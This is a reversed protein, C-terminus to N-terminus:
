CIGSSFSTPQLGARDRWSRNHAVARFVYVCHEIHRMNWARMGSRVTHHKTFTRTILIILHNFPGDRKLPPNKIRPTHPQQFLLHSHYIFASVSSSQIFVNRGHFASPVTHANGINHATINYSSFINLFYSKQGRYPFATTACVPLCTQTNM